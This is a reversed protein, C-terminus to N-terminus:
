KQIQCVTIWNNWKMEYGVDYWCLFRLLKIFLKFLKIQTFICIYTHKCTREIYIQMLAYLIVLTIHFTWVSKITFISCTQLFVVSIGRLLNNVFPSFCIAFAFDYRVQISMFYYLTPMFTAFLWDIYQMRCAFLPASFCKSTFAFLINHSVSFPKLCLAYCVTDGDFFVNIYIGLM